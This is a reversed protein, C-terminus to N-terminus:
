TRGPAPIGISQYFPISVRSGFWLMKGYLTFRDTGWFRGVQPFAPKKRAAAFGSV